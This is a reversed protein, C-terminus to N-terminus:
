PGAPGGSRLPPLRVCDDCLGGGPVRYYLCCSRRRFTWVLDPARPPLLEGAGAFGGHTLVAEAVDAARRAVAPRQVVLLRKAAAVTSAANGWLLRGAVPVHARVTGVLPELLGDLLAPLADVGVLATADTRLTRGGDAARGWWVSTAGLEPVAGHLVAAAYPASVLQAALGQFALSAAVRADCGLAGGVHAIRERVLEPDALPREGTGPGLAFFPGLGAVDALLARVDM